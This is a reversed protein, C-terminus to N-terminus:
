SAWAPSLRPATPVPWPRACPGPAATTSSLPGQRLARSPVPPQLRPLRRRARRTGRHPDQRRHARPRRPLHQLRGQGISLRGPRARGRASLRGSPDRYPNRPYDLTELYAVIAKVDEASPKNGQMSKTFSERMGEELDTQWGHWTWPGTKTVRRLTPVKKHSRLHATSLDQRGDNLTDFSLGSTHGDSHCTNCSYWQNFSREAQHFLIEGKRALSLTKPGGLPITRVLKASEADVVQVADALYNAVYLTKGDPAFTIETPRGGLPVRRFRGDSNLLEVPILDRSGDVRWPLRKLDTRFIMVEHTGGLSVALFKGDSSVAVGHADAAAKGRPDLSLTAYVPEATDLDVRTLRQGLVWGQDINNATTAFGRNKMNAIYGRKGDSSIAVQRLNDGEIPITRLVGLSQTSVVSM